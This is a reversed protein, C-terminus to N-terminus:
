QPGPLLPLLCGGAEPFRRLGESNGNGNIPQNVHEPSALFAKLKPRSNLGPGRLGLAPPLDSLQPGPGPSDSAPGAPQLGGLLDAPPFWLQSESPTPTPPCPARPPRWSRQVWSERATEACSHWRSLAPHLLPPCPRKVQDGVIFAQGGKNQFSLLTEFAEPHKPATSKVYDEKGAEQWLPWQTDMRRARAQPGGQGQGGGWPSHIAVRGAGGEEGGEGGWAIAM